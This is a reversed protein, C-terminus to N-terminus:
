DEPPVRGYGLLRVQVIALVMRIQAPVQRWAGLRMEIRGIYPRPLEHPSGAGLKLLTSAFAAVGYVNSRDATAAAKPRPVSGATRRKPSPKSRMGTSSGLSLWFQEPSAGETTQEEM